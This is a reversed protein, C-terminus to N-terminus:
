MGWFNDKKRKIEILEDLVMKEDVNLDHEQIGKVATEHIDVYLIDDVDIQRGVTPGEIAIAIEQGAIAEKLVDEGTRISRIRGIQNGDKDILDQGTRIRGALVRVGVIAPKSVRFVCNPLLKIKGPFAILGRKAEEAKRKEEVVWKKYDDILGYVIDNLFVKTEYSPLVEKADPLIPVNFALVARHLPDNYASAEIVDRKAVPGIEYKRIPIEARQSEFALAELSGIADAKIMVGAEATEIRVKTEEAIELLVEKKDGKIVRLPGGAVVGELDQCLLKVGAAAGIEPVSDFKDRPDRIEDLPKPKFIAKVRTVLPSGTTGLAITDGKSLTGSYLIVDITKGLGKEEKVELVTGKAAGEETYLEQELFKQALGILVLLLDPVGEGTKASVPVLAVNRTFDEIRDYRDASFGEQSFRGIIDYMRAEFRETADETQQKLNLIFPAGKGSQWGQILDIKNLAIIFPTKYKRLINMSEVTQPKIGENIDVVLVAIDALSGGRARLTTFSQHGPTDIFLLGPVTFKRNGILKGCVKYIHDLPVETAGIHQTILGAEDKSVSTGRINDLLSTKGHDVHGLVSVIPQRISM